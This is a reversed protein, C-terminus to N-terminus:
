GWGRKRRKAPESDAGDGATALACRACVCVRRALEAPVRALTERTITVAACWCGARGAVAGCDNEAGCIACRSPDLVDPIAMGCRYMIPHAGAGMSASCRPPTCASADV